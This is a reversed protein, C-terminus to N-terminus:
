ALYKGASEAYVRLRSWLRRLRADPGTMKPDSLVGAIWPYLPDHAAGHGFALMVGGLIGDGAPLGFENAQQTATAAIQALQDDTVDDSKQPFLRRLWVRLNAAGCLEPTPLESPLRVVRDLADTVHEKQPGMVRDLYLSLDRHLVLARIHPKSFRDQLTEAAWPFQPDTDFESGLALMMDIYFRVQPQDPFSYKQARQIGLRVAERIGSEGAAQFLRPAYQRCHEVLETEANAQMTDRFVQVQQERVIM